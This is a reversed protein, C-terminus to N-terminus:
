IVNDTGKNIIRVVESPSVIPVQVNGVTRTPIQGNVLPVTTPRPSFVTNRYVCLQEVNPDGDQINRPLPQILTSRLIVRNFQSGNIAGSPQLSNHDLAFSYM